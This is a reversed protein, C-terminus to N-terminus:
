KLKINNEKILLTNLNKAEKSLYPYIQKLKLVDFHFFKSEPLYITILSIIFTKLGIGNM